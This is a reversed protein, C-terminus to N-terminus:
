EIKSAVITIDDAQQQGQSFEQLRARVERV